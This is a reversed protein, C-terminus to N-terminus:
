RKEAAKKILAIRKAKGKNYPLQEDARRNAAAEQGAMQNYSYVSM